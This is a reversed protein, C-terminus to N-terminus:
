RAARRRAPLAHQQHYDRFKAFGDSEQPHWIGSPVLERADASPLYVHGLPWGTLEQVAALCARLMDDFSTSEAAFATIRYILSAALANLKLLREAEKRATIDRISGIFLLGAGDTLPTITLEVPFEGGAKRMATIEIRKRLLPGVGTKLYTELGRWHGERYRAPIIFDAMPRDVVESRSWGFIEEASANWDAVTGDSRMVVVADLATELMVRFANESPPKLPASQEPM